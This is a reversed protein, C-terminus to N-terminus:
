SSAELLEGVGHPFRGSLILSYQLMGGGELTCIGPETIGVPRSHCLPLTLSRVTVESVLHPSSSTEYFFPQFVM